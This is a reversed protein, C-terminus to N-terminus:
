TVRAPQAVDSRQRLRAIRDDLGPHQTVVAWARGTDGKTDNLEGLRCLASTLADAGVTAAAADDARQELRVGLLGNVLLMGIPMGVVLPVFSFAASASGGPRLALFLAGFSIWCALVAGFKLLLHRGRVHGFEHAVVADVERESMNDILYDSVAVYRLGPLLGIQVANAVKQERGAFGRLKPTQVGMDSALRDLRELMAEPLPRGRQKVFLLPVLVLQMVVLMGAYLALFSAARGLGSDPAFAFAAGFVVAMLLIVPVTILLARKRHPLKVPVDRVRALSGRVARGLMPLAAILALEAVLAVVLWGVPTDDDHTFVGILAAVGLAYILLMGFSGILALRQLRHVKEPTAASGHEIRVARRRLEWCLLWAILAAAV